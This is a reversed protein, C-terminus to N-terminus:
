QLEGKIYALVWKRVKYTASHNDDALKKRFEHHLEDSVKVQLNKM